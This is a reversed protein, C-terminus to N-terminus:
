IIYTLPYGSDWGPLFLAVQYLAAYYLYSGHVEWKLYRGQGRGESGGTDTNFGSFGNM